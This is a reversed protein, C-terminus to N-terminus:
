LKTSWHSPKTALRSGDRRAGARTTREVLATAFPPIGTTSNLRRVCSHCRAPTTAERPRSRVKKSRQQANACREIGEDALKLLGEIERDGPFQSLAESAAHRAAAYDGANLLRDFDSM